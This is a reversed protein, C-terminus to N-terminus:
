VVDLTGIGFGVTMGSAVLERNEDNCTLGHDKEYM